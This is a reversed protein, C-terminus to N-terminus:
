DAAEVVRRLDDIRVMLVTDGSEYPNTVHVMVFGEVLSHGTIVGSRWSHNYPHVPVVVDGKKLSSIKNMYM